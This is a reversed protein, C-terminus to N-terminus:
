RNRVEIYHWLHAYFRGIQSIGLFKYFYLDCGEGQDEQSLPPSNHEAAAAALTQEVTM